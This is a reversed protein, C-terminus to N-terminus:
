PSSIRSAASSASGSRQARLAGPDQGGPPIPRAVIDYKARFKRSRPRPEGGGSAFPRRGRPAMFPHRCPVDYGAPKEGERAVGPGTKTTSSLQELAARFATLYYGRQYAGYAVDGGASRAPNASAFLAIGIAVLAIPKM